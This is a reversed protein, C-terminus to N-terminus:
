NGKPTQPVLEIEYIDPWCKGTVLLHGTEPDFAIGNLVYPYKLNQPDPNLGELEIWATVVGTEANIVAIRDTKWVNAYIKGDVYELENLNDVPGDIGSVTLSKTERMTLPDMFRLVSSGDSYILERGNDTLGWGETDYSFTRTLAFSEKDYAFGVKSTYTLQLVEGGLVTVGEGFYMPALDLSTLVTGTSLETKLLRSRGNGGTGEYLAGDHMDLGETFNQRDHPYTHIIRYGYLTAAMGQQQETDGGREQLAPAEGDKKAAGNGCGSLMIAVVILFTLITSFIPRLKSGPM